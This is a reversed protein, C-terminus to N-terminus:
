RIRSLSETIQGSLREVAASAAIAISEYGDDAAQSEFTGRERRLTRDADDEITWTAVIRAVGGKTLTVQQVEIRLTYRKAAGRTSPARTVWLDPLDAQLDSVVARRIQEDMPSLWQQGDLVDSEHATRQIVMESRSVADPVRIEAVFLEAGPHTAGAPSSLASIEYYHTPLDAACGALAFAVAFLIRSFTTRRDNM